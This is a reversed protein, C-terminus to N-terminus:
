GLFGGIHDIKCEEEEKDSMEVGWQKDMEDVVVVVADGTRAHDVVTICDDVAVDVIAAFRPLLLLLKLLLLLGLLLISWCESASPSRM